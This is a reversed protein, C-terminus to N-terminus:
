QGAIQRIAAAKEKVGLPTALLGTVASVLEDDSWKRTVIKPTWDIPVEKVFEEWYFAEVQGSQPHFRLAMNSPFSTKVYSDGTTAGLPYDESAGSSFNLRGADFRGIQKMVLRPIFPFLQAYTRYFNATGPSYIEFTPDSFNLPMKVISGDPNRDLVVYEFTEKSPNWITSNDRWYKAGTGETPPMVGVAQIWHQDSAFAGIQHPIINCQQLAALAERSVAGARTDPIAFFKM